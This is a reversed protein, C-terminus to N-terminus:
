LMASKSILSVGEPVQSLDATWFRVLPKLSAISNLTNIVIGSIIEM